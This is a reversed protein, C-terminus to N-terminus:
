QMWGMAGEERKKLDYIMRMKYPHEARGEVSWPRDSLLEKLSTWLDMNKVCGGKANRFGNREWQEYVGNGLPAMVDRCGLYVKVGSRGKIRGLGRAATLVTRELSVGEGLGTHTETRVTGDEQVYELIYMYRRRCKRVQETSVEIYLSVDDMM